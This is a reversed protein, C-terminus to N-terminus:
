LEDVAQQAAEDLPYDLFAGGSGHQLQRRRSAAITNARLISEDSPINVQRTPSKPPSNGNQRRNNNNNNHSPSVEEIDLLTNIFTTHDRCRIEKLEERALQLLALHAVKQEKQVKAEMSSASLTTAAPSSSSPNATSSTTRKAFAPSSEHLPIEKEVRQHLEFFQKRLAEYKEKSEGLDQRLVVNDLRVADLKRAYM